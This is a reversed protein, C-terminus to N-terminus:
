GVRLKAYRAHTVCAQTCWWAAIVSGEPLRALNPKGFAINDHSAPYKPVNEVGLFEQGVADWVQVQNELDWTLGEDESLVLFVGPTRGERSTYALAIRGEGLDSPWCTQAQIGVPVPDPWETGSVDSIVRHLEFNEQGGISQAWQMGLIRGDLMKSYRTHSFMKERHNVSPYDVRGGWTAGGDDSFLGYGKIHLESTDEWAKWLECPIWLRGDNLEIIQSPVDAKGDDGLDILTPGAWSRGDDESRFLVKEQYRFGGTEENHPDELDGSQDIRVAVLLLTGDLLRACHPASYNYVIDDNAPDWIMGDRKWTRGGDTSRLLALIGDDSYFAQGIRFTCIVEDGGLPVINPLFACEARFGPKPNKYLPGEHELTLHV